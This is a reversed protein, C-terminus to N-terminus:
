GFEDYEDYDDDQTTVIEYQNVTPNWQYISGNFMVDGQNASPLSSVTPPPATYTGFEAEQDIMSAVQGLTQSEFQRAAREQASELQGMASERQQAQQQQVAGSGAFGMGAQQQQAQQTGSLLSSQLGSALENLSSPDFQEFLALQEPSATIGADQLISQIGGVGGGYQYEVLGGDEYFTPTAQTFSFTDPVYDSAGLLTDAPSTMPNYTSASFVSSPDFIKGSSLSLDGFPAGAQVVKEVSPAVPLSPTSAGQFMSMLNSPAQKIAMPIAEALAQRAQSTALKGGVKGYIGGGPALGATAAAKLGSVIAREGMGRTYDRSAQEVDRFSQQGYVTGETDAKVTEGAGIGEGLRRGLATGLGSVLALSAGGTVPALAAGLLGGALGGVSGFLGGRKQRKAEAKQQEELKRIDARRQRSRALMAAGRSAQGGTQYMQMLNSSNGMYFGSLNPGSKTPMFGKLQQSHKIM